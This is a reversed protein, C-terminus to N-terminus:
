NLKAETIAGWELGWTELSEKYEPSDLVSQIAAQMAPDAALGEETRRQDPWDRRRQAPTYPHRLFGAAAEKGM